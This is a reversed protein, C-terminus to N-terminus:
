SIACAFSYQLGTSCWASSFSGRFSSRAMSPIQHRRYDLQAPHEAFEQPLFFGWPGMRGSNMAMWEGRKLIGDPMTPSSSCMPMLVNTGFADTSFRLRGMRWPNAPGISISNSGMGMPWIMCYRRHSNKGM